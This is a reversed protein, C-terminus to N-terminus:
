AIVFYYVFREDALRKYHYEHLM